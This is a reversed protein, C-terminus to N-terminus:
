SGVPKRGFTSLDVDSTVTKKLFGMENKESITEQEPFYWNDASRVWVGERDTSCALTVLDTEGENISRKETYPKDALYLEVM